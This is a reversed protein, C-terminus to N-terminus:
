SFWKVIYNQKSIRAKKALVDVESIHSRSVYSSFFGIINSFEVIDQIMSTIETNRVIKITTATNWQNLEDIVPKCDTLFEM